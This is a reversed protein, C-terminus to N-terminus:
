SKVILFFTGFYPSKHPAFRQYYHHNLLISIYDSKTSLFYHSISYLSIIYIYMYYIHTYIYTCAYINPITPYPLSGDVMNTNYIYIYNNHFPHEPTFLITKARIHILHNFDQKHCTKFPTSMCQRDFHQM